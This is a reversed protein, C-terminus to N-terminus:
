LKADSVSSAVAKIEFRAGLPLAAVAFCARAPYPKKFYQAYVANVKAFDAIDALLVTCDVVHEYGLGAAKLVGGMNKLAQHAEAEVGGDVLKGTKPCNGVAGSVFVFNGVKMAQSFPLGLDPTEASFIAERDSLM